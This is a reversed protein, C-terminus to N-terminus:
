SEDGDSWVVELSQDIAALFGDDEAGDDGSGELEEKVARLEVKAREVDIEMKELRFVNESGILKHLEQLAKQKDYLKVSAGDKGQKIEQILTGDVRDSPKFEIVNRRKLLTEGTEEDTIVSGFIDRQPEEVVKFTVFDAINSFAQKIWENIIDVENVLWDATRAEKIRKIEETIYAKRLLKYGNAMATTYACDYANLYAQTANHSQSYHICFLKEKESLDESNQLREIAKETEPIVLPQVEKKPQVRKNNTASKKTASKELGNWKRSKWSKVTNISVDYKKAIDKYKMGNKYDQYALEWKEM